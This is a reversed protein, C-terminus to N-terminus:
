SRAGISTKQFRKRGAWYLSLQHGDPDRLYAHKWGWPMLAPGEDIKVGKAALSACFAELERVEIYLRLGEAQTDMKQGRELDHLAITTQGNPSRLRVYAGPYEDVVRFGLASEYFARARALDATYIM